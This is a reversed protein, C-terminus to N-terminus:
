TLYRLHLFEVHNWIYLPEEAGHQFFYILFRESRHGSRRWPSVPLGRRIQSSQLQLKAPSICLMVCEVPTYIAYEHFTSHYIRQLSLLCLLVMHAHACPSCVVACVRHMSACAPVACRDQESDWTWCWAAGATCLAAELVRACM